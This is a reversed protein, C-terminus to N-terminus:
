PSIPDSAPFTEELADDLTSNTIPRGEVEGAHECHCNDGPCPEGDPHQDACAPSCFRQNDREVVLEGSTGCTCDPCACTQDTM